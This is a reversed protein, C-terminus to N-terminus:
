LIQPKSIDKTFFCFEDDVHGGLVFSGDKESFLASPYVIAFQGIFIPRSSAQFSCNRFDLFGWYGRYFTARPNFHQRHVCCVFVNDNNKEFPILPTGGRIGLKGDLVASSDAGLFPDCRGMELDTVQFIVLPDFSYVLLLRESSSSVVLPIWNKEISRQPFPSKLRYCSGTTVDVIHMRRTNNGILYPKNRWRFFRPDEINDVSLSLHRYNLLDGEENWQSSLVLSRNEPRNFDRFFITELNESAPSMLHAGFTSPFSYTSFIRM